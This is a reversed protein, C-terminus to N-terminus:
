DKLVDLGLTLTDGITAGSLTGVQVKVVISQGRALNFTGKVQGDQYLPTGDLKYINMWLKQGGGQVYLNMYDSNSTNTLKAYVVQSGGLPLDLSSIQNSAGSDSYFKVDIAYQTAVVRVTLDGHGLLSQAAVYGAGAAVVALAGIIVAPLLWGSAKGSEGMKGSM